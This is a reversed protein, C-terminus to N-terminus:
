CTAIMRLVHPRVPLLQLGGVVAAEALEVAGVHREGYQDVGLVFLFRGRRGRVEVRREGVQAVFEVERLVDAPAHWERVM